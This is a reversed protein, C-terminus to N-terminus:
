NLSPETPGALELEKIRLLGRWEPEDALCDALALEADEERVFSTSRNRTALSSWVRIRARMCRLAIRRGHSNDLM